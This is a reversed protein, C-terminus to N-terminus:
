SGYQQVVDAAPRPRTLERIAARQEANFFPTLNEQSPMGHTERAEVAAGVARGIELGDKGFLRAAFGEM